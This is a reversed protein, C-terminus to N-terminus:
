DEIQNRGPVAELLARTYPHKPNTYLREAEDIEVIKGDKMVAIRDCMYYVVNLDHSIFLYTLGMKRQLKKMFNLIQAQVSVDLASVSEDAIVFDPECMLAALIAIRQRQGGSLEHPYKKLFTEDFGAIELMELIKRNREERTYLNHIIMPEMLIWGLTKKPNLSHYPDQFIMQINKRMSKLGRGKLSSINKGRYIIEGSDITLLRSILNGTTSKGCGSEGVLGFVEGRKIEFSINDVAVKPNRSKFLKSGGFSKKLNRIELINEM